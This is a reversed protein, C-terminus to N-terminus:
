NFPNKFPDTHIRDRKTVRSDPRVSVHRYTFKVKNLEEDGDQVESTSDTILVAPFMEDLYDEEGYPRNLLRVNDSAFLEELWRATDVSLGEAQVEFTQEVSKDYLTLSGGAVAESRKVKTKVTTTAQLECLEIANFQNFFYFSVDPVRRSFYYTFSRRGIDITDSLVTFDAKCNSAVEERLKALSTTLMGLSYRSRDPSTYGEVWFFTRIDGTGNRRYTTHHYIPQPEGSAIYHLADPYRGSITKVSLSTLFQGNVIAAPQLGDIHRNCFLVTFNQRATSGDSARAAIAFSALPNGIPSMNTEVISAFDSLSVDGGYPYYRESFIEAESNTDVSYLTVDVWSGSTAVRIYTLESSFALSSNFSLYISTAM